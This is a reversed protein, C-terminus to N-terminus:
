SPYFVVDKNATEDTGYSKSELDYVIALYNHELIQLARSRSALWHINKLLGFQKFEVEIESAMDKLEKRWIPSYCYFKFLGNINEVFRHLYDDKLKLADLMALELRHAVCHTYILGPQIDKLRKQVGSKHGSMVTAGDFNVNILTQYFNEMFDNLGDEPKLSNVAEQIAKTIGVANVSDPLQVKILNTM